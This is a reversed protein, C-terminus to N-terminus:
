GGPFDIINSDDGLERGTRCDIRAWETFEIDDQRFGEKYLGKFCETRPPKEEDEPCPRCRRTQPQPQPQAQPLDLVGTEFPTLPNAPTPAGGFAPLPDGVPRFVPFQVPPFVPFQVPPASPFIVPSPFAPVTGPVGFGPTGGPLPAPAPITIPGPFPQPEPIVRPTVQPTPRPAPINPQVPEFTPEPATPTVVPDGAPAPESGPIDGPPQAQPLVRVPPITAPGTSLQGPPLRAVEGRVLVERMLGKEFGRRRQRRKLSELGAQIDAERKRIKDELVLQALADAAGLIGLLTGARSLIQRFTGSGGPGQFRPDNAAFAGRDRLTPRVDEMFVEPFPEFIGSGPQGFFFPRSFFDRRIILFDDPTAM